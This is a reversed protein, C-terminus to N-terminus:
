QAYPVTQQKLESVIQRIESLTTATEHRSEAVLQATNRGSEFSATM